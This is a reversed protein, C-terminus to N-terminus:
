IRRRRVAIVLALAGFALSVPGLWGTSTGRRRTLESYVADAWASGGSPQFHICDPARGVCTASTFRRSDIYHSGFVSQFITKTGDVRAQLNADRYNPAGVWWVEPGLAAFWEAAPRTRDARYIDNTGLVM